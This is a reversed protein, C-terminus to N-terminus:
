AHHTVANEGAREPRPIREIYVIGREANRIQNKIQEYETRKGGTENGDQAFIQLAPFAFFVPHVVAPIIRFAFMVEFSSTSAYVVNSVAFVAIAVLLVTKRNIGSTFLTTFPGTVAVVLAFVGVLWGADSTSIGFKDSVQPLVGIIGMETTIIGFVGLALVPIFLKTKM